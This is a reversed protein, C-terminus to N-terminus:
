VGTSGFGGRSAGDLHEVMDFEIEPQKKEIRFQCLRTGFPIVVNRTAYVPFGWKDDDGCYTEDIVGMSNTQILGWKKFTSSRPVVHAEYGAPLEMSVGLPIIYFTDKDLCVDAACYLDIWDSGDVQKLTPIPAHYKVNIKM